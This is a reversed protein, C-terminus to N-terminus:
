MKKSKLRANRMSPNYLQLFLVKKESIPVAWQWCHARSLERIVTMSVSTLYKHLIHKKDGLRIKLSLNELRMAINIVRTKERGKLNKPM